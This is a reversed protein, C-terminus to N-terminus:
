PTEWLKLSTPEIDLWGDPFGMLQTVWDPNLLGQRKGITNNNEPDQPGDQSEDWARRSMEEPTVLVATNLPLTNRNFQSAGANNEGDQVTPTPWNEIKVQQTLQMGFGNGNNATEKTRERRALWSELTEGDNAVSANPTAWEAQVQNRLRCQTTRGEEEYQTWGESSGARSADEVSPTQGRRGDAENEGQIAQAAAPTPWLSYAIEETRRVSRGLVWWVHRRLPTDRRKWILSLPTLGELESLLYTRLYYGLQISKESLM